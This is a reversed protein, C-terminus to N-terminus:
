SYNEIFLSREDSNMLGWYINIRKLLNEKSDNIYYIFERIKRRKNDDINIFIYLRMFINYHFEHIMYSTPIGFNAFLTINNELWGIDQLNALDYSNRIFLNYYIEKVKKKSSHYDIIDNLLEKPQTKYSMKRIMEILEQPLKNIFKHLIYNSYM